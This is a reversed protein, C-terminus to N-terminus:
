KKATDRAMGVGIVLGLLTNLVYEPALRGVIGLHGVDVDGLAGSVVAVVVFLVLAAPLMLLLAESVMSLAPMVGPWRPQPVALGLLSLGTMAQKAAYSQALRSVSTIYSLLFLGHLADFGYRAPPGVLRALIVVGVSLLFPLVAVRFLAPYSRGLIKLAQYSLSRFPRASDHNDNTTM